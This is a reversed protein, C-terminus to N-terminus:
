LARDSRIVLNGVIGVCAVQMKFIIKIITKITINNHIEEQSVEQKGTTRTLKGTTPALTIILQDVEVEEARSDARGRNTYGLEMPVSEDVYGPNNVTQENRGRPDVQM